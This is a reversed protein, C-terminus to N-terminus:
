LHLEFCRTNETKKETVYTQVFCRWIPSLPLINANEAFMQCAPPSECQMGSKVLLSNIPPQHQHSCFLKEDIELDKLHSMQQIFKKLNYTVIMVAMGAM